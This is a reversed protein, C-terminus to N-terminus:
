EVVGGLFTVYFRYGGWFGENRTSVVPSVCGGRPAPEASQSCPTKLTLIPKKLVHKTKLLVFLDHFPITHCGKTAWQCQIKELNIKKILSFFRTLLFGRHQIQQTTNNCRNTIPLLTQLENRNKTKINYFLFFFPNFFDGM